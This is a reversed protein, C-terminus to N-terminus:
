LILHEQLHENHTSHVILSVDSIESLNLSSISNNNENFAFMHLFITIHLFFLSTLM